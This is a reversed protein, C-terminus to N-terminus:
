SRYLFDIFGNFNLDQLAGACEDVIATKTSCGIRMTYVDNTKQKLTTVVQLMDNQDVDQTFIILRLTNQMTLLDELLDNFFDVSSTIFRVEDNTTIKEVIGNKMGQDVGAGGGHLILITM